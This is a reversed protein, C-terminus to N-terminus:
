QSVMNSKDFLFINEESALKVPLKAYADRLNVDFTRFKMLVDLELRDHEMLLKEWHGLFAKWYPQRSNKIDPYRYFHNMNNYEEIRSMPSADILHCMLLLTLTTKLQVRFM